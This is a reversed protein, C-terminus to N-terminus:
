YGRNVKSRDVKNRGPIARRICLRAFGPPMRLHDATIADKAQKAFAAHAADVQGLLLIRMPDHGEFDDLRPKRVGLQQAAEFLLGVRQAPQLMGADRLDVFGPGSVAAEAGLRIECHLENRALRQNLEGLFATELYLRAQLEDCLDAIRYRVSMLSSDNM